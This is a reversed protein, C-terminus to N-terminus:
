LLNYQLRKSLIKIETKNHIHKLMTEEIKLQGNEYKKNIKNLGEYIKITRRQKICYKMKM